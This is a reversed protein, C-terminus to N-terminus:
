YKRCEELLQAFHLFSSKAALSVDLWLNYIAKSFSFLSRLHPISTIEGM